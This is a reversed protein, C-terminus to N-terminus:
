VVRQGSQEFMKVKKQWIEIKDWFRETFKEVNFKMNKSYKIEQNAFKDPVAEICLFQGSFTEILNCTSFGCSNVLHVLSNKSFFSRHEYILDWIGLDKLTFDVNPVEFFIVTNSKNGISKRLNILFDHPYQIHELVQRCCIFDASYDSYRESYFDKIFTIESDTNMTQEVMEYSPDFGVGQNGGMECLMKLFEGKGCGIEIIEKGHLDYTNILRAASEYAYSQFFKSFYLSNEYQQTYEMLDPNFAINFIHECNECFTLSINSKPARLANNRTEWLLNCHVPVDIIDLFVDIDSSGCVPCMSEEKGNEVNVMIFM